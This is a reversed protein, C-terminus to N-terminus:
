QRWWPSTLNLSSIPMALGRSVMLYSVALGILLQWGEIFGIMLRSHTIGFYLLVFGGLGSLLSLGAHLPEDHLALGLGAMLALWLVGDGLASNLQPLPVRSHLQLFAILALVVMLVRFLPLSALQPWRAEASGGPAPVGRLQRASLFLMVAILGGTVVQLFAWEMPIRQTLLFGLTASELAYAFLMARWDRVVVITAALIGLVVVAPLTLLISLQRIFDPLTM